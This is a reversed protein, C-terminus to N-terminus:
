RCGEVLDLQVLEPRRPLDVTIAEDVDDLNLGIV